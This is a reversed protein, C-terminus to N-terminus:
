SLIVQDARQPLESDPLRRSSSRREVPLDAVSQSRHLAVAQGIALWSRDLKQRATLFRDHNSNDMM